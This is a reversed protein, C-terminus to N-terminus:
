SNNHFRNTYLPLWLMKTEVHCQFYRFNPPSPEVKVSCFIHNLCGHLHTSLPIDECILQQLTKLWPLLYGYWSGGLIRSACWPLLHLHYSYIHFVLLSMKATSCYLVNIISSGVSKIFLVEYFHHHIRWLPLLM